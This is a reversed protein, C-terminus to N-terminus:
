KGDMREVGVLDGSEEVPSVGIREAHETRMARPVIEDDTNEARFRLLDHDNGSVMRLLSERRFPQM